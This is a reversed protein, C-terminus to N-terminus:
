RWRRASAFSIEVRSWSKSAVAADSRLSRLTHTKLFPAPANLGTGKIVDDGNKEGGCTGGEGNGDTRVEDGDVGPLSGLHLTRQAYQSRRGLSTRNVCACSPLTSISTSIRENILAEQQEGVYLFASYSCKWSLILAIDRFNQLLVNRNAPTEM